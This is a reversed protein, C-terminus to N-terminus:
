RRRASVDRVLLYLLRMVAAVFVVALPVIKWPFDLTYAQYGGTAEGMLVIVVTALRERRLTGIPVDSSAPTALGARSGDESIIPWRSM